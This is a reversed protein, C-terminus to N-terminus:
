FAFARSGRKDDRLCTGFATFSPYWCTARTPNYPRPIHMPTIFAARGVRRGAANRGNMRTAAARHWRRQGLTHLDASRWGGWTLTSPPDALPRPNKLCPLQDLVHRQRRMPSRTLQGRPVSAILHRPRCLVTPPCHMGQPQCGADRRGLLACRM